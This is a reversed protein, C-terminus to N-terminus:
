PRQGHEIMCNSYAHFQSTQWMTNSWKSAGASCDHIAADRASNTNRNDAPRGLSPSASAAIALGLALGALTEKIMPM